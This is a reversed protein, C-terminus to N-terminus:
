EDPSESKGEDPTKFKNLQEIFGPHIKAGMELARDCHNVAKTYEKELYYIIALNNHVDGYDPKLKLAKEYWDRAEDNKGQGFLAVGLNYYTKVLGTDLNIAQKFADIASDVRKLDYYVLGLSNFIDARKLDHYDFDLQLAREFAAAAEDYKNLSRYANGLNNFASAYDPKSSVAERYAKVAEPLKGALTYANGLNNYADPYRNNIEIAKQFASIAEEVMGSKSYAVGLNNYAMDYHPNKKVATRYHKIAERLEGREALLNALNYYPQHLSPSMKTAMKYCELARDTQGRASYELGVNYHGRGNHPAKAVIDSWLTFRDQWIINRHYTATGLVAIYVMGAILLINLGTGPRIGGPAKPSEPSTFLKAALYPILIAFGAMPLYLRHEVLADYIPIISSEVSLTIFFWGVAFTLVPHRKRALIGIVAIIVLFVFALPTYGDFFGTKFRYLYDLNQNIPVFLLRIYIVIVTFQTCLYEWRSVLKTHGSLNSVNELLSDSRANGQVFGATLLVIFLWMIGFVAFVPIKRKWSKWTRSFCLYELLVIVGPLSAANLKNIPALFGSFLALTLLCITKWSFQGSYNSEPTNQMSNRALLYLFVALMFFLAALSTFRQITYTVAQTQLPHCVFILASFLALLSQKHGSFRSLWKFLLLAIFYVLIGNVVHILVNVLHFGFVNLKGFKYNLAFTFFVLNRKQILTEISCYNSVDRITELGSIFKKSDFSFPVSYINSYIILTALAICVLAFWQSVFM